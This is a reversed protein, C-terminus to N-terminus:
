RSAATSDRVTQPEAEHAPRRLEPWLIALTSAYALAGVVWVATPGVPFGTWWWEAGADLNFGQADAGTVYRRIDVQLAVVNAIVLAALVVFTQARTLVLRGGAPTTLLIFVFLVILPLLYRPQLNEGVVNGGRTLVWLPLVVLVALVGIAAIAKRRNMRGIGLFGLAIFASVAAWSVIEPLGTDMWGLASTGWVGTWLLPLMLMNYALLAAGTPNDSAGPVSGGSGGFGSSAVGAQGSTAFFVVALAVGAAPLWAWRWTSRWAGGRWPGAIITATVLAGAAYVAADGRSGAAMLVGVGTLVALAIRRGGTTEFWGTLALFTTGVGTLAWGSPNNSPILFLGLPVLAVLWGWLLTPRRGAPLLAALATALGVFLLANVLRMVLAGVQLDDGAFLHMVGYYVPPYEGAFNGRESEVVNHGWTALVEDQCAASVDKRAAFCAIDDLATSIERSTSTSGEECEASGGLACWTSTLHYDDDPAAGLPSAFAWAALAVFALVPALHIWRLRALM